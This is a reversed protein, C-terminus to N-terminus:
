ARQTLVARVGAADTGPALPAVLRVRVSEGAFDPARDLPEVMLDAGLTLRAFHSEHRDRGATVAYEGPPPVAIGAPRALRYRSGEAMAVGRLEHPRGLEATVAALDATAIM